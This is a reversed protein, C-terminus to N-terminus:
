IFDSKYNKLNNDVLFAVILAGILYLIELSSVMGTLRFDLSFLTLVEDRSWEPCIQEAQMILTYTYTAYLM